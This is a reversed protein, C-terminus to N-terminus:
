REASEIYNQLRQAQKAESLAYEHFFTQLDDAEIRSAYVQFDRVREQTDLLAKKLCDKATLEMCDGGDTLILLNAPIM